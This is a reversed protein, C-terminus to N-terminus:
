PCENDYTDLSNTRAITNDYEYEGPALGGDVVTKVGFQQWDQGAFAQMHVGFGSSDLTYMVGSTLCSFEHVLGDVDETGYYLDLVGNGATNKYRMYAITQEGPHTAQDPLDFTGGEVDVDHWLGDDFDLYQLQIGEEVNLHTVATVLTYAGVAAALVGGALVLCMVLFMAPKYM